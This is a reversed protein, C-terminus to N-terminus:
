GWSEEKRKKVGKRKRRDKDDTDWTARRRRSVMTGLWFPPEVCLRYEIVYSSMKPTAGTGFCAAPLSVRASLKRRLLSSSFDLSPSVPSLFLFHFPPLIAFELIGIHRM